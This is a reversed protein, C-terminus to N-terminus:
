KRNRRRAMYGALGAASLALLAYTSPEPVVQFSSSTTSNYSGNWDGNAVTQTPDNLSDIAGNGGDTGSSFVDFNITDGVVLGLTALPINFSYNSGSFTWNAPSGIQAWSGTFQWLQSGGGSDTWTGVWFNIPTTNFTIPRGWPNTTSSSAAPTKIAFMYNGWGPNNIAANLSFFLDTANNTIELSVIDLNANFTGVDNTADNYVDAFASSALATAAIATLLIKKM